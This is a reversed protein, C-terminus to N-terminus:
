FKAVHYGEYEKKLDIASRFDRLPSNPNLLGFPAQAVTSVVDVVRPTVVEEVNHDIEAVSKVMSFNGSVGSLEEYMKFFPLGHSKYTKSDMPKGPPAEGTVEEYVASNLIQANFVTTRGSLWPESDSDKVITQKIKGGAAVSM